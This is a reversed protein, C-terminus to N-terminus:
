EEFVLPFVKADEMKAHQLFQKAVVAGDENAEILATTLEICKQYNGLERYMEAVFLANGENLNILKHLVEVHKKVLAPSLIPVSEVRNRGGYVDNFIFLWLFLLQNLREDTLSDSSLEDYAADIQEFSLEGFRNTLTEEQVTKWESGIQSQEEKKAKKRWLFQPKNQESPLAKANGDEYFFFHGCHPCYQILSPQPLMPFERKSDSWITGGFTNGSAISMIHKHGSCHPCTLRCPPGPTM